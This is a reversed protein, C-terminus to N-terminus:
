VALATFFRLGPLFHNRIIDSNGTFITAHDAPSLECILTVRLLKLIGLKKSGTRHYRLESLIVSSTTVIWSRKWTM